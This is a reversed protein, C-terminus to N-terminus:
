VSPDTTNLLSNLANPDTNGILTMLLTSFDTLSNHRPPDPM